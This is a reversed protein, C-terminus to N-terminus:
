QTRTWLVHKSFMGDKVKLDLRGDKAVSLEVAYSRGKNPSYIAGSWTGNGAARIGGLVALGMIPRGRQAPDANKADTIAKGNREPQKLWVVTGAYAAGNKAIAVKSDAAETLWTGVIAEDTAQTGASTSAACLALLIATISRAISM